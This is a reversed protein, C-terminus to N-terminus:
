VFLLDNVIHLGKELDEFREPGSLSIRVGNHDGSRGAAFFEGSTVIVGHESAQRSFEAPNWTDPLELWIFYGEPSQRIKHNNLIEKSIQNRLSAEKRKEAITREAIGSEIWYRSVRAALPSVVWLMDAICQEIRKIHSKPSKMYAVRLGCAVSKSISAIYFGNEPVLASVPEPVQSHLQAYADDEILLLSEDLVAKALAERRERSMTATTPNQCTPMCYIGHVKQCRCARLLDEVVMGQEDMEIAILKLQFRRAISKFMPYTLKEVAICDGARFATGLITAISNQGGATIVIDAEAADLNHMQLWRVGIERDIRRGCSPYYRLLDQNSGQQAIEILSDSLDPDLHNLPFTMGMDVVDRHTEEHNRQFQVTDGQPAVYTGRGTEGRLWGRKAAEHYGRTVTGVTVGLLDALERHTPMQTGVSLEGGRIDRGIAEAIAKYRPGALEDISPRWITM